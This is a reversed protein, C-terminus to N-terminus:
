PLSGPWLCRFAISLSVRGICLRWVRGWHDLIENENERTYQLAVCTSFVRQLVVGYVLALARALALVEMGTGTSGM